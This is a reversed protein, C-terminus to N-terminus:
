YGRNRYRTTVAIFSFSGGCGRLGFRGFNHFGEPKM